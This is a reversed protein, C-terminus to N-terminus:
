ESTQHAHGSLAKASRVDVKITASGVGEFTLTLPFSSGEKLPYELGILMIHLGGPELASAEGPAIEIADIPRMKMIGKDMQHTHLSARKAIPTSAGVLRAPSSGRNHMILFVVANKGAGITARAWPTAVGVEGFKFEHSGVPGSVVLVLLAIANWIRFM